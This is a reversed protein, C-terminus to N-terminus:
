LKRILKQAKTQRRNGLKVKAVQSMRKLQLLRKEQPWLCKPIKQKMSGGDELGCSLTLLTKM